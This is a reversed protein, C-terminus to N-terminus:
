PVIYDDAFFFNIYMYIIITDRKNLENINEETVITKNRRQLYDEADDFEM